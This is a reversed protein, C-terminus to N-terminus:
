LVSDVSDYKGFWYWKRSLNLIEFNKIIEFNNKLIM